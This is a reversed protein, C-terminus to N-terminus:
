KVRPGFLGGSISAADAKGGLETLKKLANELMKKDPFEDFFKVTQSEAGTELNTAIHTARRSEFNFIDTLRYGIEKKETVCSIEESATLIWGTKVPAFPKRSAACDRLFDAIGNRHWTRARTEPKNGENDLANVDAGHEVLMQVIPFDGAVAAYHLATCGDTDKANLEAGHHLFLGVIDKKELKCAAMLLTSGKPFGRYNTAIYSSFPTNIDAKKELLLKLAEVQDYITATFLPSYGGPNGADLDAGAELCKKIESLKGNGCARLLQKNLRQQESEKKFFGM